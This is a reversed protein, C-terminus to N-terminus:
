EKPNDLRCALFATLEKTKETYFANLAALDEFQTKLFKKACVALSARAEDWVKFNPDKHATKLRNSYAIAANKIARYERADSLLLTTNTPALYRRTFHFRIRSDRLLEAMPNAAKQSTADVIEDYLQEYETVDNFVAYEVARIFNCREKRQEIMAPFNSETKRFAILKSTFDAIMEVPANASAMLCFNISKMFPLDPLRSQMSEGTTSTALLPLNILSLLFAAIKISKM